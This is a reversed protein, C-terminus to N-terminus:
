EGARADEEDQLIEEADIDAANSQINLMLHVISSTRKLRAIARAREPEDLHNYTKWLRASLIKRNRPNLRNRNGVLQAAEPSLFNGQGVKAIGMAVTGLNLAGDDDRHTVEWCRVCVHLRLLESYSPDGTRTPHVVTAYCGPRSCVQSTYGESCEVVLCEVWPLSKIGKIMWEQIVGSNQCGYGAGGTINGKATVIGVRILSGDLPRPLAERWEKAANSQREASRRGQEEYTARKHLFDPSHLLAGQLPPPISVMQSSFWERAVPSSSAAPLQQSPSSPNTSRRFLLSLDTSSSTSGSVELCESLRSRSEWQALEKLMENQSRERVREASSKTRHFRIKGSRTGVQASVLSYVRGPDSSIIFPSPRTWHENALWRRTEVKWDHGGSDVRATTSDFRVQHHTSSTSAAAVPSNWQHQIRPGNPFSTTSLSDDFPRPAIAKSTSATPTSSPATSALPLRPATSTATTAPAPRDSSLSSRVSGGGMPPVTTRPEVVDTIFESWRENNSHGRGNGPPTTLSLKLPLRDDVRPPRSTSPSPLRVFRLSVQVGSNSNSESHPRLIPPFPATIENQVKKFNVEEVEVRRVEILEPKGTQQQYQQRRTELKRYVPIIKPQRSILLEATELCNVPKTTNTSLKSYAPKNYRTLDGVLSIVKERTIYVNGRHLKGSGPSAKIIYRWLEQEVQECEDDQTLGLHEFLAFVAESRDRLQARSRDNLRWIPLPGKSPLEDYDLRPWDHMAPFLTFESHSKQLQLFSSDKQEQLDNLFRVAHRSASCASNPLSRPFEFPRLQKAHTRLSFMENFERSEIENREWLEQILNPLYNQNKPNTFNRLFHATFHYGDPEFNLAPLGTLSWLEASIRMVMSLQPSRKFKSEEGIEIEEEEIEEEERVEFFKEDNGLEEEKGGAAVVVDGVTRCGKFVDSDPSHQVGQVISAGIMQSAFRTGSIFVKALEHSAANLQTSKLQTSSQRLASNRITRFIRSGFEDYQLEQEFSVEEMDVQDESDEYESDEPDEEDMGVDADENEADMAKVFTLLVDEEMRDSETEGDEEESDEELDEETDDGTPAVLPQNPISTLDPLSSHFIALSVLRKLRKRHIIELLSTASPSLSNFLQHLSPNSAAYPSYPSRSCFEALHDVLATAATRHLRQGRSILTNSYSTGCTTFNLEIFKAQGIIPPPYCLVRRIKVVIMGFLNFENRKGFDTFDAEVFRLANILDWLKERRDEPVYQVIADFKNKLWPPASAITYSEGISLNQDLRHKKYFKATRQVLLSTVSAFHQGGQGILQELLIPSFDTYLSTLLQILELIAPCESIWVNLFDNLSLQLSYDFRTGLRIGPIILNNFTSIRNPYSISSMALGLDKVGAGVGKARSSTGEGEKTGDGENEDGDDRAREKGKAKSSKVYKGKKRPQPNGDGDEGEVTANQEQEVLASKWGELAAFTGRLHAGGDSGERLQYHRPRPPSPSSIVPVSFSHRRQIPTRRSRPCSSHNPPSTTTNTSPNQQFSSTWFSSAPVGFRQSPPLSSARRRPRIVPPSHITRQNPLPHSPVLSSFAHNRLGPTTYNEKLRANTAKELSDEIKKQLDSKNVLKDNEGYLGDFISIVDYINMNFERISQNARFLPKVLQEFRAVLDILHGFNVVQGGITVSVVRSPSKSLEYYATRWELAHECIDFLIEEQKQKSSLQGAHDKRTGVGHLTFSPLGDSHDCATLVMGMISSTLELLTRDDNLAAHDTDVGLILHLPRNQSQLNDVRSTWATPPPPAPPQPSFSGPFSYSEIRPDEPLLQRAYLDRCLYDAEGAAVVLHVRDALRRSETTLLEEIPSCPHAPNLEEESPPGHAPLLAVDEDSMNIQPPDSSQQTDNRHKEVAIRSLRSAKLISSKSLRNCQVKGKGDPRWNPNDYVLYIKDVSPFDDLIDDVINNSYRTAELRREALVVAAPTSTSLIKKRYQIDKNRFYPVLYNSMDVSVVSVPNM